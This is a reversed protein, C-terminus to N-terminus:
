LIEVFNSPFSGYIYDPLLSGKWWGGDKNLTLDGEERAMYAYVVRVTCVVPLAHDLMAAM